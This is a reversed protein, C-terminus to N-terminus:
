TYSKDKLENQYRFAGTDVLLFNTVLVTILLSGSLSWAGTLFFLGLEFGDM